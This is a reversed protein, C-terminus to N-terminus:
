FFISYLNINVSFQDQPYYIKDGQIIPKVHKHYLPGDYNMFDCFKQVQNKDEEAFKLTLRWNKHDNYSDICGDSALIGSWYSNILNPKEFAKQNITYKRVLSRDKKFKCISAYRKIADITRNIYRTMDQYSYKNINNKIFETEEITWYKNSM